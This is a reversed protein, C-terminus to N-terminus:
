RILVIIGRLRMYRQAEYMMKGIEPKLPLRAMFEGIESTLRGQEDLAGLVELLKEAHTLASNDPKDVYDFSHVDNIGIKKMRLVVNGLNSRQMEPLQHDLRQDNNEFDDKSCLRYCKGPAVRGARGKRQDCGARSHPRTVLSEIGTRPEFETQRILCTDIVHRVGPITVSTEAINTSVVIRRKGAKSPQLAEDQEHSPLQAHLRLLEVGELQLAEIDRITHEIEDKGTVFILIDGDEKASTIQNVKHACVRSLSKRDPTVEEYFTEVPYMRGPVEVVPAENFYNSIKEKEVTASALVIKLPSLGAEKRLQQSHKLLGLALDVNLSRDHVEDVMVAGYGRLYPDTQIMSLLIGDTMYTLRTGENAREDFRVIYGVDKGLPTGVQKAVHKSISQAAIRRPQTCIVRQDDTMAEVLYQGVKTTKGSGTEGIVVLNENEQFEKIIREKYLEVPLVGEPIEVTPEQAQTQVKTITADM